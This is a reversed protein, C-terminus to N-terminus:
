RFLDPQQPDPPSAIDKLWRRVSTESSKLKRAIAAKSLGLSAYVQARWPKALPVRRPLEHAISALAKAKPYGVVDAVSSRSKPDIAIYIEAGGFADLFVLTDELGLADYYRQVQATPKPHSLPLKAGSNHGIM